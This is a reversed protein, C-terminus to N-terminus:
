TKIILRHYARWTPLNNEHLVLLYTFNQQNILFFSANKRFLTDLGVESIKKDAMRLWHCVKSSMPFSNDIIMQLLFDKKNPTNVQTIRILRQKLNIKWGSKSWFLILPAVALELIVKKYKWTKKQTKNEQNISRSRTRTNIM